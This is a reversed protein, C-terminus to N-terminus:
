MYICTYLWITYPMYIYFVSVNMPTQKKSATTGGGELRLTTLRDIFLVVTEHPESAVSQESMIYAILVLLQPLQEGIIVVMFVVM